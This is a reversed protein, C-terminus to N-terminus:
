KRNKISELDLAILVINTEKLKMRIPNPTYQVSFASIRKLIEELFLNECSLIEMSGDISM